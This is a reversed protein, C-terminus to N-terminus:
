PCRRNNIRAIDWLRYDYVVTEWDDKLLGYSEVENNKPKRPNLAWYGFDVDSDELYRLLNQWYHLDRATPEHPSGFEGVWVPAIENERIFNWNRDMDRKFSGYSRYWYPRLSGWGSWGYVHASYVVKGKRRLHVPRRCAGSVDNASSVGEVVILWQPSLAHLRSAAREAAAAWSNWLYSGLFGRVENRLDIGVVLPNDVHPRMVTVLNEIWQEETQKIACFPVGINEWGTDCPNGDCCWRSQTIHNNVIVVLGARTLAEVVSGFIELATKGVLDANAGLHKADVLPNKLVLEDSYPLRVSNFGLKRVTQAIENRQRIDLGGPVMFIDSAGYWNISTLKCRMGTADLINRDQTQLPPTCLCTSNASSLQDRIKHESPYASLNAPQDERGLLAASILILTSCVFM